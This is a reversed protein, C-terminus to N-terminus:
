SKTEGEPADREPCSPQQNDCCSDTFTYDLIRAALFYGRESQVARTVEADCRVRRATGGGCIESPMDLEIEIRTGEPLPSSGAFLVGSKNINKLGGDM